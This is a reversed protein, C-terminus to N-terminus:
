EGFKPNLDKEDYPRGDAELEDHDKGFGPELKTEDYPVVDLIATIGSKMEVSAIVYRYIHNRLLSALTGPNAPDDLDIVFSATSGSTSNTVDITLDPRNTTLVMEPVYARWTGTGPVQFFRLAHTSRKVNDPLTPTNVQTEQINWDRNATIDPIFRGITNYASLSVASVSLNSPLSTGKKVEIKSLARLLKIEGMDLVKGDVKKGDIVDTDTPSKAASLSKIESVGFMPIGSESIKPQWSELAGDAATHTPMTFCNKAAETYLDDVLAGNTLEPYAAEADFGRWNTLVLVQVSGESVSLPGSLAVIYKNNEPASWKQQTVTLNQIFRGNGDFVLIQYDQKAIDIFNEADLANELDDGSARTGAAQTTLQVNLMLPAEDTREPIPDYMCAHLLLLLGTLITIHLPKRM